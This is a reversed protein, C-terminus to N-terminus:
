FDFKSEVWHKPKINNSYSKFKIEKKALSIMLFSRGVIEQSGSKFKLLYFDFGILEKIIFDGKFVSTMVDGVQFLM